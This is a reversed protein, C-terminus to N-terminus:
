NTKKRDIRHIQTCFKFNTAKGMESIIHTSSFDPCDRSVGVSGKRWFQENAKTRTSAIFTDALNETRLKVQEQSLLSQLKPNPNRVRLRPSPSAMPPRPHYREISLQHSGIPGGYYSKM